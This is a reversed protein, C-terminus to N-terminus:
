APTLEAVPVRFRKGTQVDQIEALREPVGMPDLGCLIYRQGQYIVVDGIRM